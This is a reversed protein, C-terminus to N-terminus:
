LSRLLESAAKHLASGEELRPLLANLAARAEDKRGLGAYVQAQNLRLQPLEPAIAVAQQLNALGQDVQGQDVQISGLTDLIAANNPALDRARLALELAKPDKLKNMAWALNNLILANDPSLDNMASFFKVGEAFRGEALAREGLYGRMTLDTPQKRQWDAAFREAEAQQGGNLLAAHLRPAIAPGGNHELARQYAKAAQPWRREAAQLEAELLYGAPSNAQQQQVSQAIKLADDFKGQVRLLAALRQQVALTNGKMGLAKRLVQEAANTDNARLHVDALMILAPVSEPRLKVLRNLSSVAQQADGSALQARALAELVRVDDANAAALKQAVALAAKGEGLRLQYQIVALQPILSTPVAARARELTALVRESGAGTEREIEALALYAEVNKGDAAILKNLRDLAAQPKQEALDMRALSLAAALFDAKHQLAQEFAARAGAFDRQALKMRGGLSLVLPNDAHKRELEAQLALAQDTEGRRLHTAILALDAQVANDDLESALGFDALAGESDGAALRAAGLRLRSQVDQPNSQAAQEFFTEARAYDGNAIFVQGALSALRPNDFPRELLPQLLELARGAEGAALHSSILLSRALVQGPARALVLDLHERGLAQQNLQLYVSGALLHAPLFNPLAKLVEVLGDRAPELRGGRVDQYALLYRTMPHAPALKKLEALQADGEDLRGLQYLSSILAYQYGVQQPGHKVAAQLAAITEDTKGQVRLADALVAYADASDAHLALVARAAAEAGPADDAFLHSRALGIGAEASTPDLKLAEEFLARARAVEAKGLQAGALSVMLDAQATKDELKLEAYDALVRDFEGGRLRARALLPAVEAEPYGLDAARQLEKLAGAIDGRQLHLRGLLFRAETLNGDQQLANKLQIEAANHDNSALYSRASELMQQPSEACASLLVASLLAALVTRSARRAPQAVSRNM